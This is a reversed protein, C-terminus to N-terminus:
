RWWFKLLALLLFLTSATRLTPWIVEREQKWTLLREM